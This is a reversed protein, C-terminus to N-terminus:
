KALLDEVAQIPVLRRRGAQVSRLEGRKIMRKVTSESVRMAQAAEVISYALPPVSTTTGVAAPVAALRNRRPPVNPLSNPM